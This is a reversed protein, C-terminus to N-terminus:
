YIKKHLNATSCLFFSAIKGPSSEQPNKEVRFFWINAMVIKKWGITDFRNIFHSLDDIGLAFKKYYDIGEYYEM